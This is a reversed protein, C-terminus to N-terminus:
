PSYGAGGLPFIRSVLHLVARVQHLFAGDSFCPSFRGRINYLIVGYCLCRGVPNYIRAPTTRANIIYHQYLTVM